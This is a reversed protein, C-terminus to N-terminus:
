GESVPDLDPASLDPEGEVSEASAKKKKNSMDVAIDLVEDQPIVRKVKSPFVVEYHALRLWANGNPNYKIEKVEPSNDDPAQGVVFTRPAELEGVGGDENPVVEIVLKKRTLSIIQGM